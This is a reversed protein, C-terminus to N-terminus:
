DSNKIKNRYRDAQKRNDEFLKLLDMSLFFGDDGGHNVYGIAYKNDFYLTAGLGVDDVGPRDSYISTVSVGFPIGIISDQWWNVGIWEIALAPKTNEGDPAAQVNEVVINPHLVFWQREPPGVLYDHNFHKKEFITTVAIDAFTQARASEFYSDWQNSLGVLQIRTEYATFANANRQYPFIAKDLEELVTLCNANLKKDELCKKEDQQTLVGASDHAGNFFYDHTEDRPGKAGIQVVFRPMAKPYQNGSSLTLEFFDLQEKLNNLNVNVFKSSVNRKVLVGFASVEDRPFGDGISKRTPVLIADCITQNLKRAAVLIEPFYKSDEAVDNICSFKIKNEDSTDQAYANSFVILLLFVAEIM